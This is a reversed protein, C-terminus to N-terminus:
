GLIKTFYQPTKNKAFNGWKKAQEDNYVICEKEENTRYDLFNTSKSHGEKGNIIIKECNLWELIKLAEM